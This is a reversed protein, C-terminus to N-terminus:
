MSGLGLILCNSDLLGKSKKHTSKVFISGDFVPLSIYITNTKRSTTLCSLVAIDLDNYKVTCISKPTHYNLSMGGPQGPFDFSLHFILRTKGGSKPVLGIPSQIYNPYPIEHYPGGLRGEKTEKMLKNWMDVEDGVGPQFPINKATNQRVIPGEYGISFGRKFGGVLFKTEDTNYNSMHLLQKLKDPDVPTPITKLIMTSLKWFTLNSQQLFM